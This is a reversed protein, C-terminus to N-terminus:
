LFLLLLLLLLLVGLHCSKYNWLLKRLTHTDVGEHMAIRQDFLCQM